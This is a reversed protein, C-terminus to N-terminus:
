TVRYGSELLYFGRGGNTVFGHAVYGRRFYSLFVERTAARWARAAALNREKLADIDRPIEVSIRRERLRPHVTWGTGSPNRRLAPAYADLDHASKKGAARERARKSSIRWEATFRDTDLGRNFRSVSGAYLNVSYERIVCGLKELNFYANRSQLPDFAWVILPLGERLVYDRQKWKMAEGIGSNAHAPLVGLMRSYYYPRGDRFAPQGFCFAVMKGNRFAGFVHGGHRQIVVLENLPIIERDPFHWIRRQLQEAERYEEPTRLRRIPM